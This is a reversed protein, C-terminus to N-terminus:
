LLHVQVKPWGLRGAKGLYRLVGREANWTGQQGGAVNGRGFCGWRRETDIRRDGLRYVTAGLEEWGGCCASDLIKERLSFWSYRAISPRSENRLAM